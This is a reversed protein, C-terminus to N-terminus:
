SLITHRSVPWFKIDQDWPINQEDAFQAFCMICLVGHILHEPVSQHWIHDPVTFGIPNLRGCCKCIERTM